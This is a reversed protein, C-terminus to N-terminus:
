QPKSRSRYEGNDPNYFEVGNKGIELTGTLKHEALVRRVEEKDNPDHLALVIVSSTIDAYHKRTHAVAEDSMFPSGDARPGLTYLHIDHDIAYTRIRWQGSPALWFQITNPVKAAPREIGQSYSSEMTLIALVLVFAATM